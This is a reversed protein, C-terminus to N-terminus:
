LVIPTPHFEDAPPHFPAAALAVARAVLDADLSRLVAIREPIELRSFRAPGPARELRDLADDIAARAASSEGAYREELSRVAYAARAPDIQSRTAHGVAEVLAAYTVM